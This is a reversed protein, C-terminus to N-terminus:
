SVWTCALLEHTHQKICEHVPFMMMFSSGNVVYGLPAFCQRKFCLVWVCVPRNEPSRSWLNMGLFHIEESQALREQSFPSGWSVKWLRDFVGLLHIGVIGVSRSM